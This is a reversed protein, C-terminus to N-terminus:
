CSIGAHAIGKRVAEALAAARSFGDPESVSYAQSQRGFRV